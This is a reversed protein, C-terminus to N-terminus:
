QQNGSKDCYSHRRKAGHLPLMAYLTSLLGIMCISWLVASNSVERPGNGRVATVKAAFSRTRADSPAAGLAPWSATASSWWLSTQSIGRLGTRRVDTREGGRELATAATDAASSDTSAMQKVSSGAPRARAWPNAPLRNKGAVSTVSSGKTASSNDNGVM